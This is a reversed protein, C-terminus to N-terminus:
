IYVAIESTGLWINALGLKNGSCKVLEPAMELVQELESYCYGAGIRVESVAQGDRGFIYKLKSVAQRIRAGVQKIWRRVTACSAETDIEDAPLTGGDIVVSEVENGSYHKQPLLFDPQLSHWKKCKRCWVMTIELEQGTEKIVRTYRSHYRLPKSCLECRIGGESIAQKIIDESEEKYENVNRGLYM